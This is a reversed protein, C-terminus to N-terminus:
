DTRIEQSRMKQTMRDEGTDLKNERSRTETGSDWNSGDRERQV